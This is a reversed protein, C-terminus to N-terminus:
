MVSVKRKLQIMGLSSAATHPCLSHQRNPIAFQDALSERHVFLVNTGDRLTKSDGPHEIRQVVLVVGGSQFDCHPSIIRAM